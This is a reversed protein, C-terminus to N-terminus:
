INSIKLYIVYWYFGVVDMKLIRTIFVIQIISLFFQLMNHVGVQLITFARKIFIIHHHIVMRITFIRLLGCALCINKWDPMDLWENPFLNNWSLEPYPLLIWKLNTVSYCKKIIIKSIINFEHNHCWQKTLFYVFNIFNIM